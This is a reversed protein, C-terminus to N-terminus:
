VFVRLAGFRRGFEAYALHRAAVYSRAWVTGIRSWVGRVRAEVCFEDCGTAFGFASM